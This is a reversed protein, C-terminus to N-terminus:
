SKEEKDYFLINSELVILKINEFFGYKDLLYVRACFVNFVLNLKQFNSSAQNHKKSTRIFRILTSLVLASLGAMPVSCHM